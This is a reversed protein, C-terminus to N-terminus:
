RENRVENHDIHDSVRHIESTPKPTGPVDLEVSVILGVFQHGFEVRRRVTFQEGLLVFMSDFHAFGLQENLSYRYFTIEPGYSLQAM